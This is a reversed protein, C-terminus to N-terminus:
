LRAELQIKLNGLATAEVPLAIVQKGTTEGTLRNLFANKAGGGVIYLKKCSRGTSSELEAIAKAYSLALSRYACRFYDAEGVRNLEALLEAVEEKEVVDCLVAAYGDSMLKKVTALGIGRRSGTVIAIKKM